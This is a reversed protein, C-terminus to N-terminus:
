TKIKEIRYKAMLLDFEKFCTNLEAVLEAPTVKESLQTFGKFDTFLITVQEFHKAEAEGKLKLEDAVEGPLINLLLEDSRDLAQQTRRRQRHVVVGFVLLGLGAFLFVNRRTREKAITAEANRQQQAALLSDAVQQRAYDATLVAESLSRAKEANSVSDLLAHYRKYFRLGERTNGMGEYALALPYLNDLEEKELHHAEAMALGETAWHVAAGYEKAKAHALAVQSRIWSRGAPNGQEQDIVAFTYMFEALAGAYNGVDMMLDGRAWNILREPDAAGAHQVVNTASDLWNLAKPRDNMDKYQGSIRLMLDVTQGPYRHRVLALAREYYTLARDNIGQTEFSNALETNMRVQGFSDNVQEFGHLALLLHEVSEGQAGVEDLQMGLYAHALAVDLMTGSRKLAAIAEKALAIAEMHRRRHNLASSWALSALAQQRMFVKDTLDMRVGNSLTLAQRITLTSDHDMAYALAPVRQRAPLTTDAWIARLSDLRLEQAVSQGVLTLAWCLIASRLM